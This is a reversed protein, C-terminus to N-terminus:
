MKIGAVLLSAWPQHMSLCVGQDVSELFEDNAVKFRNTSLLKKDKDKKTNESPPPSSKKEPIDSNLQHEEM